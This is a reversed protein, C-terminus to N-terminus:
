KFSQTRLRTLVSVPLLQSVIEAHTTLGLVLTVPLEATVQPAASM